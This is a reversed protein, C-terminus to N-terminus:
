KWDLGLKRSADLLKRKMVMMVTWFSVVEYTLSDVYSMHLM